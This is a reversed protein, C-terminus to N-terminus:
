LGKAKGVEILMETLGMGKIEKPKDIISRMSGNTVRTM